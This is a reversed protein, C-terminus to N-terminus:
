GRGPQPHLSALQVMSGDGRHETGQFQSGLWVRGGKTARRLTEAIFFAISVIVM